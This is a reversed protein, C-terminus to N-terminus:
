NGHYSTLWRVTGSESRMFVSNTIPGFESFRVGKLLSGDTIGTAAFVCNGNVLEDQNYVKKDLKNGAKDVLQAQFGGGLCKVACATLVAEPAGGVGYLLDIGRDPLCAAIGGSVDCDQILKIRVGMQRMQQIIDYHRPRDLICVMIDKVKKGNALSVLQITREIPDNIDLGVTKAVTPGYALKNM